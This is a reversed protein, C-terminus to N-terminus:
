AACKSPQEGAWCSFYKITDRLVAIDKKKPCKPAVSVLQLHLISVNIVKETLIDIKNAFLQKKVRGASM